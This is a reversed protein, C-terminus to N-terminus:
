LCKSIHAYYKGTFKRLVIPHIRRVTRMGLDELSKKYFSHLIGQCNNAWGFSVWEGLCTFASIQFARSPFIRHKWDSWSVLEWEACSIGIHACKGVTTTKQFENVNQFSAMYWVSKATSSQFGSWNRARTWPLAVCVHQCWLHRPSPSSVPM